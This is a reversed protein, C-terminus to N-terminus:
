LEEPKAFEIRAIRPGGETKVPPPSLSTAASLLDDLFAAQAAENLAPKSATHSNTASAARPAAPPKREAGRVRKEGLVRQCFRMVCTDSAAIGSQTLLEGITRYSAGKKRLAAIDDKVSLLRSARSATGRAFQSAAARFRDLADAPIAVKNMAHAARGGCHSQRCGYCFSCHSTARVCNLRLPERLM